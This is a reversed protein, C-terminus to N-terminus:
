AFRRECCFFRRVALGIRKLIAFLRSCFSARTQIRSSSIRGVDRQPQSTVREGFIRLVNKRGDRYFPQIAVSTDAEDAIFVNQIERDLQTTLIQGTPGHFVREKGDIVLDAVRRHSTALCTTVNVSQKKTGKSPKWFAINTKVESNLSSVTSYIFSVGWRNASLNITYHLSPFRNEIVPLDSHRLQEPMEKISDEETKFSRIGAGDSVFLTSSSTDVTMDFCHNIELQTKEPYYLFTIKRFTTWNVSFICRHQEPIFFLFNGVKVVKSITCNSFAAPMVPVPQSLKDTAPNWTIVHPKYTTPATTPNLEFNNTVILLPDGVKETGLVKEIRDYGGLHTELLNIDKILKQKKKDIAVISSGMGYVVVQDTEREGGFVDFFSAPLNISTEKLSTRDRFHLAKSYFIRDQSWANPQGTGMYAVYGDRFFQPDADLPLTMVKPAVEFAKQWMKLRTMDHWRHNTLAVSASDHENLYLLIKLFPNASQIRSFPNFGCQSPTINSIAM